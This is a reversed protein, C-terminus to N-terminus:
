AVQDDTDLRPLPPAAALARLIAARTASQIREGRMSRYVSQPNIHAMRALAVGDLGRHEM